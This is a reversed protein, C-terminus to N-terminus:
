PRLAYKCRRTLSLEFKSRLKLYEQKSKARVSDRKTTAKKLSTTLPSTIASFLYIRLLKSHKIVKCLYYGNRWRYQNTNYQYQKINGIM